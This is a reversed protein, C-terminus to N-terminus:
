DWNEGGSVGDELPQFLTLLCRDCCLIDVMPEVCSLPAPETPEGDSTEAIPVRGAFTRWERSMFYKWSLEEAEDSAADEEM